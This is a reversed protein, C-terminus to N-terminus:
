GRPRGDGCGRRGRRRGAVAGGAGAPCAGAAAVRQCAAEKGPGNRRQEILGTHAITHTTAYSPIIMSDFVMIISFASAAGARTPLCLLAGETQRSTFRSEGWRRRRRSAQKAQAESRDVWDALPHTFVCQCPMAWFSFLSPLGNAKGVKWRESTTQQHGSSPTSRDVWCVQAISVGGGWFFPWGVLGGEEVARRGGDASAPRM